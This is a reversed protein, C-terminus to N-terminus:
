LTDRAMRWAEMHGHNLKRYYIYNSIFKRIEDIRKNFRNLIRLVGLNFYMDLRWLAANQCNAHKKFQATVHRICAPSSHIFLTRQYAFHAYTNAQYHRLNHPPKATPTQRVSSM